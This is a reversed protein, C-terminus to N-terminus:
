RGLVYPPFARGGMVWVSFPIVSEEIYVNGVRVNNKFVFVNQPHRFIKGKFLFKFFDKM